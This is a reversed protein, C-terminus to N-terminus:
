EDPFGGRKAAAMPDAPAKEGKRAFPWWGPFTKILQLRFAGVSGDIPLSSDIGYNTRVKALWGGSIPFFVALGGGYAWHWPTELTEPDQFDEENYFYGGGLLTEVRVMRSPSFAYSLEAVAGKKFHIGSSNYGRLHVGELGKLRYASFRDLDHGDLLELKASLRRLRPLHTNKTFRYGYRLPQRSFELPTKGLEPQDLGYVGEEVRYETEAFFAMLYGRKQFDFRLSALPILTDPPLVYDDLTKDTKQISLYSLGFGLGLTWTPGLARRFPLAIRQEQRKLDQSSGRGDSDTYRDNTPIGALRADLSGEWRTGGLRGRTLFVGLFPGAWAVDIQTGTGRYDMDYWNLGAFPAGIDGDISASWGAVLFTNSKISASEIAREGGLTGPVLSVLGEELSGRYYPDRSALAEEREEEFSDANVRFDTFRVKREVVINRSLASFVMQGELRTMLWLTGAETELPEFWISSEDSLVPPAAETRVLDLRVRQFERRDIWVRGRFAASNGEAPDFRIRYCERGAVTEGAELTYRYRENLAIELPVDRVKEPAIFPFVPPKGKWRYGNVFLATQRYELAGKKGFVENETSVDVTEGLESIGYHYSVKARALFHDLVLDQRARALQERALIERATLGREGGVELREAPLDARAEVRLLAPGRTAPLRLSASGDPHHRPTLERSEGRALETWDARGVPPLGIRVRAEEVATPFLLLRLAGTGGGLLELPPTVGDPAGRLSSSAAPAAGPPLERALALLLRAEDGTRARHLTVRAGSGLSRAAREVIGPGLAGPDEREVSWVPLGPWVTDRFAVALPVAPGAAALGDAYPRLERSRLEELWGGAEPSLPGILVRSGPWAARLATSARKFLYAYSAADTLRDPADGLLWYDARIGTGVGRTLSSIWAESDQGEGPLPLLRVLPVGARRAALATAEAAPDPGGELALLLLGEPLTTGDLGALGGPPIELGLAVGPGEPEAPPGAGLAALAGTLALIRLSRTM